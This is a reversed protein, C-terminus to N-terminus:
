MKKWCNRLVKKQCKTKVEEIINQPTSAGATIGVRDAHVIWAPDLEDSSQIFYTHECRESAIENLKQTNSSHKGGIVLMVDAWESVRATEEQNEQTANCISNFVLGYYMTKKFKAVIKNFKNHNFTTQSVLCCKSGEEFPINDLDEPESVVYFPGECWGTIGIVEPHDKKGAIIINYGEASKESVIKHIKKVFPCTADIVNMGISQLRHMREKGIGHARIILTGKEGKSDDDWVKVGKEELEAVVDENHIIPGYTYIPGEESEICEYVKDVARKVGFCFGATKCVRIEM